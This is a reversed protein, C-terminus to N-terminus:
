NSIPKDRISEIQLRTKIDLIGFEYNLSDVKKSDEVLKASFTGFIQKKYVMFNYDVPPALIHPLLNGRDFQNKFIQFLPDTFLLNTDLIVYHNLFASLVNQTSYDVKRLDPFEHTNFYELFEAKNEKDIEKVFDIYKEKDNKRQIIRIVQDKGVMTQIFRIFHFNMDLLFKCRHANLNEELYKAQESKSFSQDKVIENYLIEPCGIEISKILYFLVSDYKKEFNWIQAYRFYHQYFPKNISFAHHYCLIASDLNHKIYYNVNGRNLLDYYQKGLNTDHQSITNFYLFSFLITLHPNLRKM